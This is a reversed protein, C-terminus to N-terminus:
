EYLYGSTPWRVLEQSLYSLDARSAINELYPEYKRATADLNLGHHGPDYFFDREIRWVERYMQKWEARPDIRAEMDAVKLTGEGPKPAAGAAAILWRDGQRVLMKEGNASLDFSRVGDMFKETKRTKLDFKYFTRGRQAPPTAPDQVNEGLYLIGTKGAWMEFYERAPIPLSLIRQDINETDVQVKVPGKDAPKADGEKKDAEAAKEDDSEPA